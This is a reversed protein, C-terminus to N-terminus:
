GGSDSTVMVKSPGQKLKLGGLKLKEDESVYIEPNMVAFEAHPRPNRDAVTDPVLAPHYKFGIIWAETGLRMAFPTM